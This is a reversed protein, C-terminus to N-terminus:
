AVDQELKRLVLYSGNHGLDVARGGDCRPPLDRTSRKLPARPSFPLKGYANKHGLLLEGARIPPDFPNKDHKIPGGKVVPNTPGDTVGLHERRDEPIEADQVAYSLGHRSLGEAIETHREALDKKSPCYLLLLAHLPAAQEGGYDWHEPADDGFDG